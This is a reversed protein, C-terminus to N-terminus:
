RRGEDRKPTLIKGLWSKEQEWYYKCDGKSNLEKMWTLKWVGTYENYYPYCEDSGYKTRDCNKCYRKESMVRGGGQM